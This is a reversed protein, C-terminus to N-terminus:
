IGKGGFGFMLLNRICGRRSDHRAVTNTERPTKGNTSYESHTDIKQSGRKRSLRHLDSIVTGTFVPDTAAEEVKPM